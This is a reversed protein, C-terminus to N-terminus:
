VLCSFFELLREADRPAVFMTLSALMVWQFPFIYLFLEMGVHLLALALLVPYRTPSPWVLFPFSLEVLLAYSSLARYIAPHRIWQVFFRGQPGQHLNYVPEGRSWVKWGRSLKRFATMFYILCIQLQMLRFAWGRNAGPPDGPWLLVDLSMSTGAPSLVLLLSLLAIVFEWSTGQFTFQAGLAATALFVVAASYPTLFGLTVGLGGLGGALLVVTAAHPVRDAYSLLAFGGSIRHRAAYGEPGFVLEAHRLRALMWTTVVAGFCIRFLVLPATSVDGHFFHVWISTLEDVCRGYYLVDVAEDM